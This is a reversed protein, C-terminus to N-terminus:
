SLLGMSGIKRTTNLIDCLYQMPESVNLDPSINAAKVALHMLGEDVGKILFGTVGMPNILTDEILEREPLLLLNPYLAIQGLQEWMKNSFGISTINDDDWFIDLTVLCQQQSKMIVLNWDIKYNVTEGTDLREMYGTLDNKLAPVVLFSTDALAGIIKPYMIGGM